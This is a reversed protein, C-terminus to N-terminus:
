LVAIFISALILYVALFGVTTFLIALSEKKKNEIFLMLPKGFILIGMIAASIVFLLLFMSIGIVPYETMANNNGTVTMLAAVVGIYAAAGTAFIASQGIFKPNM